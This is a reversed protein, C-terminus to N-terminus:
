RLFSQILLLLLVVLMLVWAMMKLSKVGSSARQGNSQSQPPKPKPPAGKPLVSGDLLRRRRERNQLLSKNMAEMRWQELGSLGLEEQLAIIEKEIEVAENAALRKVTRQWVALDHVEGTRDEEEGELYPWDLFEGSEPAEVGGTGFVMGDIQQALTLQQPHVYIDITGAAGFAGGNAAQHPNMEPADPLPGSAVEVRAERLANLLRWTLHVPYTGLFQFDHDEEDPM